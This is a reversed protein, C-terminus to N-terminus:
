QWQQPTIRVETDPDDTRVEVTLLMHKLLMTQTPPAAIHVVRPPTQQKNLVRAVTNESCGVTLAIQAHTHGEARLRRIEDHDYQRPRM